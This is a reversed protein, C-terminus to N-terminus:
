PSTTGARMSRSVDGGKAKSSKTRLSENLLFTLDATREGTPEWVGHLVAGWPLVESYTGDAHFLAVSPFSDDGVFPANDM